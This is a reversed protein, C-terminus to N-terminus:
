HIPGPEYLEILVKGGEPLGVLFFNVRTGDAGPRTVPYLAEVGFKEKLISTARDVNKCRFEVQQVGEGFKELFRAIAGGKGPAKTTLIDLSVRNPLRLEFEMADQDPPVDALRSNGNAARIRAFTAPRVAVGVTARPADGFLAAFESDSWWSQSADEAPTRGLRFIESAAAVRLAADPSSLKEVLSALSANRTQRVSQAHSVISRASKGAQVEKKKGALLSAAIALALILVVMALSVAVPVHIWPEVIMKTGVFLLVIALAM